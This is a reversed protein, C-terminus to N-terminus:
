EIIQDYGDYNAAVAVRVENIYTLNNAIFEDKQANSFDQYDNYKDSVGEIELDMGYGLINEVTQRREEFQAEVAVNDLFQDLEGRQTPLNFRRDYGATEDEAIPSEVIGIGILFHTLLNGVLRGSHAIEDGKVFITINDNDGIQDLIDGGYIIHGVESYVTYGHCNSDEEEDGWPKIINHPLAFFAPSRQSMAVEAEEKTIEQKQIIGSGKAAGQDSSLKISDIAKTQRIALLRNDVIHRGRGKSQQLVRSTAEKQQREVKM